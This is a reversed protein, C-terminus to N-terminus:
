FVRLLHKPLNCLQKFWSHICWVVLNSKFSIFFSIKWWLFSSNKWVSINFVLIIFIMVIFLNHTLFWVINYNYFIHRIGNKLLIFDLTIKSFFDSINFGLLTLIPPLFHGLANNIFLFKLFNKFILILIFLVLRPHIFYVESITINVAFLIFFAYSWPFICISRVVM